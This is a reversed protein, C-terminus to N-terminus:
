EDYLGESEVEDKGPLVPLEVLGLLELELSAVM